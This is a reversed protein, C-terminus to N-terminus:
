EQHTVKMQELETATYARQDALSKFSKLSQMMKLTNELETQIQATVTARYSDKFRVTDSQIKYIELVTNLRNTIFRFMHLLTQQETRPTM